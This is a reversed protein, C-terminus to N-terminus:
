YDTLDPVQSHTDDIAYGLRNVVDVVGDVARSMGVAVGIMSKDEVEGALTVVGEDVTVKVLALNTRLYDGFIELAIQDRIEDDPRLYVKLLDSPTVVGALWGDSTTVVLQRVHRRDMTRAAAVISAEPSITVPSAMVQGATLAAARSHAAPHTRPPAVKAEPDEQWEQKRLLDVETVVGAVRGQLDLVPLAGVGSSGIMTALEKFPTDLAATIVETTMVDSVKRHAV